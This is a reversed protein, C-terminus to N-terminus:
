FAERVVWRRGKKGMEEAAEEDCLVCERGSEDRSRSRKEEQGQVHVIRM